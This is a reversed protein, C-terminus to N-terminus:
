GEYSWDWFWYAMGKWQGWDEFAAEVEARGVLQGDYWEHSVMKMAWSDVPIYDTRGLLMLLNAAAYDGVGKIALLRKRLEGTSLDSTKLSELDLKGSAVAQSLEAVYPGRYGLGAEARLRDGDVQALRMPTPFAKRGSNDPLDAGYQEVLKRVMRKTGSWATNTTLITKVTDEFLSASRLIRGLAQQEAHVLKPEQRAVAYFDSLDRDLGLMWNVDNAIDAEAAPDLDGLVSVAVGDQADQVTLDIVQGSRLAM